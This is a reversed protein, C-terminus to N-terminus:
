PVLVTIRLSCVACHDGGTRFPQSSNCRPCTISLALREQDAKRQAGRLRPLAAVIAGILASCVVLVGVVGLIRLYDTSRESILRPWWFPIVLMLALLMGLVAMIGKLSAGVVSRARKRYLGGVFACMVAWVSVPWLSQMWHLLSYTLFPFTTTILVWGIAALLSAVLGTMMLTPLRGRRRVVACTLATVSFVLLAVACGGVMQVWQTGLGMTAGGALVVLAAIGIVILLRKLLSTLPM